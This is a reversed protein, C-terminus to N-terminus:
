LNSLFQKSFYISIFQIHKLKVIIESSLMEKEKKENMTWEMTKWVDSTESQLPSSNREMPKTKALSRSVRSASSRDCTRECGFTSRVSIWFSSCFILFWALKDNGELNNWKPGLYIGLYIREILLCKYYTEQLYLPSQEVVYSIPSVLVWKKLNFLKM